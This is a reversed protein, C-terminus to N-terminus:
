IHILSLGLGLADLEEGWIGYTNPWPQRLDHAALLAVSLGQDALAAAMCLAAPGGGLVLVDSM